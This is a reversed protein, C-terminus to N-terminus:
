EAAAIAVHAHMPVLIEDGARYSAVIDRTEENIARLYAAFAAPDEAFQPIVAAYAFEMREVFRDADAFRADISVQHIEVETFGADRLLTVLDDANGLSFPAVLEARDIEVGSAALHPEEADALAAFLPHADLGHWTIVVARGRPELVRRMERAGAARDPFFQLGQQCYVADFGGDPLDLATGDGQHYEVAEDGGLRQAVEVMKPNLDIGVVRGAPGTAAALKRALIGTGSAIELVRDGPSPAALALVQESLPEFIAPGYYAQYAEAPSTPRESSTM